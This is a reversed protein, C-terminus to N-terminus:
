VTKEMAAAFASRCKEYMVQASTAESVGPYPRVELSINARREEGPAPIYGCRILAAFQDELDGQDFTGGHVGIPPHTHGYFVSHEELVADGMHILGLGVPLSADLAQEMTEEMLPLHAIDLMLHANVAGAQQARAIFDACERTPGLILAKFRHREIPELLLEIGFQRTYDALEMFFDFYRALLEPRRAEGKDLCGTTVFIPSECEAAFDVHMKAYRLAQARVAPDDGCPNLPGDMQLVAPSNYHMEIGASRIERVCATRMASDEPLFTEFVEYNPYRCCMQIAAFHALPDEFSKPFLMTPSFGFRVQSSFKM